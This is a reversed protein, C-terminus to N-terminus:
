DLHIDLYTHIMNGLKMTLCFAYFFFFFFASYLIGLVLLLCVKVKQEIYMIFICFYALIGIHLIM